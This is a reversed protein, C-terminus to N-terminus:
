RRRIQKALLRRHLRKRRQKRMSVKYKLLQTCCFLVSCFLRYIEM